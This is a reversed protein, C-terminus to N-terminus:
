PAPPPLPRGRSALLLAVSVAAFLWGSWDGVSSQVSPVRVKAVESVITAREFLHLCERFREHQEDVLGVGEDSRATLCAAAVPPVLGTISTSSFNSRDVALGRRM